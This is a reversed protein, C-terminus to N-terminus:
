FYNFLNILRGPLVLLRRWKISMRKKL